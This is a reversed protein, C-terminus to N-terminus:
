VGKVSDIVLGSFLNKRYIEDDIYKDIDIETESLAVIDEIEDLDEGFVIEVFFGNVEYLIYNLDGKVAVSIYDANKSTFLDKEKIPLKNFEPITM